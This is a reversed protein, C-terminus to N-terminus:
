VPAITNPTLKVQITPSPNAAATVALGVPKNGTAVTTVVKNTNDFWVIAGEAIALASTKAMEFVGETAINVRAGAAVTLAAVGFLNGVLVGVGSTTGGAPATVEVSEGPQVYNRM